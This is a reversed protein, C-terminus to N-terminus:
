LPSVLWVEEVDEATLWTILAALVVVETLEVRFGEDKPLVTVKLAVTAGTLGPDPVGVPVTVKKSPTVVRPVPVRLLRPCAEKVVAVSATPVCEIVAAYPPSARKLM